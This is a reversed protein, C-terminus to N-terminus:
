ASVEDGSIKVRMAYLSKRSVEITPSIVYRRGDPFRLMIDGVEALAEFDDADDDLVVGSFSVYTTGGTGYFASPRERGALKVTTSERTSRVTPGKDAGGETMTMVLRDGTSLADIVLGSSPPTRVTVSSTTKSTAGATTYGIASFTVDKGFPLKDFYAVGGIAVDKSDFSYHGGDVMVTAGDAPSKTSGQTVKIGVREGEEVVAVNVGSCELRSGVVLTKTANAFFDGMQRYVSNFHVNFYVSKGSINTTLSSTPVLITGIASITGNTNQRTLSRGGVACMGGVKSPDDCLYWRDDKRTWTTTYTIALYDKSDYYASVLSYEPVFGIFCTLWATESQTRGDPLQSVFISHVSVELRISDYARGDYKWSKTGGTMKSLADGVDLDHSWWVRGADGDPKTEHCAIPSIQATASCIQSEDYQGTPYGTASVSIVWSAQTDSGLETSWVIRIPRSGKGDEREFIKIGVTTGERAYDPGESLSLNQIAM